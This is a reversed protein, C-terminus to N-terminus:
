RNRGPKAPVAPKGGGSEGRLFNLIDRDRAVGRIPAGPGGGPQDGNHYTHCEACDFRAGGMLRGGSRRPPAHCDRCVQIGPLLVDENSTWTPKGNALLPPGNESGRSPVPRGSNEAGPHCERCNLARHASHDFVAHKLWVGPVATTEVRFGAPDIKEDPGRRPLDDPTDYHHCETCTGKGPGYLIREAAGVRREVERRPSDARERRDPSRRGELRDLAKPDERIEVGLYGAVLAERLDAPQLGHRVKVLVDPNRAKPAASKLPGSLVPDPVRSNLTGSGTKDPGTGGILEPVLGPVDLAHCAACQNQYTIPIMYAPSSRRERESDGGTSHCAACDLKVPDTEKMGPEWGYRARDAESVRAYTSLPRDEERFRLGKTMHLAHNFKLRGHDAKASRFPPHSPDHFSTINMAIDPLEPRGQIGKALDRHCSTCQAEDRRVLSAEVGQHDRHCGACHPVLLAKETRHHAQDPHGMHCAKCRADGAESEIGAPQSLSEPRIEPPPVHCADCKAEWTAHALALPGHSARSRGLDPDAIGRAVWAVTGVLALLSLGLRWRARRDGQRLYHYPIRAARDKGTERAFM